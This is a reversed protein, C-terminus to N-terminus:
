LDRGKSPPPGDRGIRMRRDRLVHATSSGTFALSILAAWTMDGVLSFPFLDVAGAVVAGLSFLSLGLYYISWPVTNHPVIDLYVELRSADETLEVLGRDEDFTVIHNEAMKPLHSQRLATYVRMREKYTVAESVTDNEWAAIRTSLQKLTVPRQEQLLHHLVYRRRTSSLTEFATEQTLTSRSRERGFADSKGFVLEGISM